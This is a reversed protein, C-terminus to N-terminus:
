TKLVENIDTDTMLTYTFRNGFRDASCACLAMFLAYENPCAFVQCAASYTGVVNARRKADARHINAGIMATIIDGSTDFAANKDNDRWFPLPKAQVLAPYGKHQGIVYAGSHQGPVLQATGDKHMPALRFPVGPDTTIDFSHFCWVGSSKYFVALQDNFGDANPEATNRIAVINLNYDGREFVRYGLRKLTSILEPMLHRRM